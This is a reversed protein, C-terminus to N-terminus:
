PYAEDSLSVIEISKPDNLPGQECVQRVIDLVDQIITWRSPAFEIAHQTGITYILEFKPSFTEDSEDVLDATTQRLNDLMEQLKGGIDRKSPSDDLQYSKATLDLSLQHEPVLLIIDKREICQQFLSELSQCGEASLETQRSFPIFYVRRQLPGGLSSILKQLTQTAQEKVTIIRALNTGDALAMSVIPLIVSTKGEGMNLQLVSNDMCALMENAVRIQSDRIRINNHIEFILWDPSHLPDWSRVPLTQLEQLIADDNVASALRQAHQVVEFAQALRVLTKLWKSSPKTRKIHLLQELFIRLSLGPRYHTEMAIAWAVPQSTSVSLHSVLQDLFGNYNALSTELYKSRRDGFDEDVHLTRPPPQWRRLANVSDQLKEVYRLQPKSSAIEPLTKLLLPLKPSVPYNQISILVDPTKVTQKSVLEPADYFELFDTSSICRQQDPLPGFEEAYIVCDTETPELAFCPRIAKYLADLYECFDVNTKWMLFRERVKDATTVVDLFRGYKNDISLSVTKTKWNQYLAHALAAMSSNKESENRPPKYCCGNLLRNVAPENPSGTKNLYFTKHRPILIDRANKFTVLAIAAALFHRQTDGDLLYGLCSLWILKDFRNISDGMVRLTEHIPCWHNAFLVKADRLWLLNYKFHSATLHTMPGCTGDKSTALSKIDGVFKKEKPVKDILLKRMRVSSCVRYVRDLTDLNQGSRFVSAHESPERGNKWNKGSNVGEDNAEAEYLADSHITHLEGGIGHRRFTSLRIDDRALLMPDVRKELEQICDDLVPLDKYAEGYFSRMDQFHRLINMVERHLGCDQTLPSLQQSWEQMIMTSDGDKFCRSPSLKAIKVMLDVNATTLYQSSRVESSTLISLAQGTGTRQTFPDIACYSSGAHLLALYLNSQLSGNSKLTKMSDDVDYSHFKVAKAADIALNVHSVIAAPFKTFKVDGEPILVLRQRPDSSKCLILKNKLGLLTALYQNRAINM